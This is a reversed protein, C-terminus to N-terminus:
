KVRREASYVGTLAKQSWHLEALGTLLKLGLPSATFVMGEQIAATSTLGLPDENDENRHHSNWVQGHVREM